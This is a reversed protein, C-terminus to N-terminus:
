DFIVEYLTPWLKGTIYTKGTVPNYAIGNLFDVGAPQQNVISSCDITSLVKGTTTDIELLINQQYVNAFLRGDILELENIQAYNKSNDFVHLVKVPAFTAPDRWAIEDTGNSMILQHGNNCLGWGEHTYGFEKIRNFALDYVYCRGSTYNLQYITSDLISIGEGFESEGLLLERIIKGDTLNVETLKSKGWQGTGEFLRGNWFELGQTYSETLHPTTSIVKATKKQPTIDSFIEVTRSDTKRVGDQLFSLVISIRGVRLNMTEVSITRSKKEDGIPMQVEDLYLTLSDVRSPDKVEIQVSITDGITYQATPKVLPTLLRAAFDEVVDRDDDPVEKQMQVYIVPIVLALLIIGGIIWSRKSM